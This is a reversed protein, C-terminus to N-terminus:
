WYRGWKNRHCPAGGRQWSSANEESVWHWSHTVFHDVKHEEPKVTDDAPAYSYWHIVYEDNTGQSIQHEVYDVCHKWPVQTSEDAPTQRSNKDIKDDKRGIIRKPPSHHKQTTNLLAALAAWNTSVSGWIKNEKMTVTNPWIKVVIFPAFKASLPQSYSETSLGEVDSAIVALNHIYSYHGNLSCATSHLSEQIQKGQIMMADIENAWRCRRAYVNLKVPVIEMCTTICHM